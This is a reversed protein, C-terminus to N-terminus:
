KVLGKLRTTALEAFRSNKEIGLYRRQLQICAAGTTGSGNFPDVVLDGPDSACAVVRLLLAIPLQTPFGDIRENHSGALRPIDFWCDDLIKGAPNARADNYKTQRDSPRSVADAHFVGVATGKTAHFLHRTCRNFKGTCNVGFGEYWKVWNRITFGARKMEICCEAAYEDSILVWLSGDPTLIRNCERAWKAVWAAFEEPPMRDADEGEGYDIGINYPPDAFVLRATGTEIKALQEVCDGVRIEWPSPTNGIVEEAAKAKEELEKRKEQRKVELRAQPLTLEGSKVKELLEPAQQQIKKADSVYRAGVGVLKAAEDRAQPDRRPKASPDAQPLRAELRDMDNGKSMEEEVAMAVVAKQGPTLQKPLSAVKAAASRKDGGHQKGAARQREKAEEAQLKEVDLAVIARQSATLHRRHLNLSVVFAVLSGEGDWTRFTPEINLDCCARYRNRGDIIKGSHLWIPERLGNAKIDAVLGAYESEDMMPFIDAVPHFPVRTIM